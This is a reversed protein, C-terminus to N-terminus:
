ELMVKHPFNLYQLDNLVEDMARQLFHSLKGSFRLFDSSFAKKEHANCLAMYSVSYRYVHSVDM